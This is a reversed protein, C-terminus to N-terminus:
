QVLTLKRVERGSDTRVQALYTGSAVRRGDGDRGRWVVAQSGAAREGDLLTAVRRGRADHITLRVHGAAPLEFRITTSPNFPNPACRLQLPAGAAFDPAATSGTSGLLVSGGSGVVLVGEDGAAWIAELGTRAGTDVMTWAGADHHYVGGWGALVHLDAPTEGHLDVIGGGPFSGDVTWQDGDHHLVDGGRVLAWVDDSSWGHVAALNGVPPVPVETWALGDWHLAHDAPGVAWIDDPSSGWVGLLTEQGPDPARVITWGAGDYRVIAGWESVVVIDDAGFGWIAQNALLLPRLGDDMDTWQAGDWHTIGAKGVVYLDDPGPAWADNFWVSFSTPHIQTWAQGDWRLLTQQSGFAHVDDPARGWV